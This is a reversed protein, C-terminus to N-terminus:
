FRRWPVKAFLYILYSLSQKSSSCIYGGLAVFTAISEIAGVVILAIRLKQSFQNDKREFVSVKLEGALIFGVEHSLWFGVCLQWLEVSSPKSSHYCWSASVSLFAAASNLVWRQWDSFLSLYTLLRLIIHKVKYLIARCPVRESNTM